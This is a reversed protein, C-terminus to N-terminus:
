PARAPEPRARRSARQRTRARCRKIDGSWPDGGTRSRGKWRCSARWRCRAARLKGSRWRRVTGARTPARRAARATARAREASGIPPRAARLVRRQTELGHRPPRARARRAFHTRCSVKSGGHVASRLATGSRWPPQSHGQRRARCEPRFWAPYGTEAARATRVRGASAAGRQCCETRRANSLPATAKEAANAQASAWLLGFEAAGAASATGAASSAEGLMASFVAFGAVAAEDLALACVGVRESEVRRGGATLAVGASPWAM